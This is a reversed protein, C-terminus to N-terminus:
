AGYKKVEVVQTPFPISIDNKRFAKIIEKRMKHAIPWQDTFREVQFFIKYELAYGGLNTLRVIPKFTKVAGPMNTIVEESVKGLVKEVKELDSDYAVSVPVSVVFGGGPINYNVIKQQAFASNPIILANQTILRIRTSRWGVEEVYGETGDELKIYDGIRVPKDALIYVGAFFNALTDQLALAVALGAIGLGAVLPAIQVGFFDLFIILAAVYIAIGIIKRVIPFLEKTRREKGVSPAIERGYWIILADIVRVLTFGALLIFASLLLEELSKGMVTIFPVTVSLAIYASLVVAVARLPQQLANILLDDMETRTKTTLKKAVTSFAMITVNLVVYSVVFLASAIAASGLTTPNVYNNFVEWAERIADEGIM